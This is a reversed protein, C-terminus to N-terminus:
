IAMVSLARAALAKSFICTYKHRLLTRNVPMVTLHRFYLVFVLRVRATKEGLWYYQDDDVIKM